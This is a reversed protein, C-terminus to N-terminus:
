DIRIEDVYWVQSGDDPSWDPPLTCEVGILYIQSELTTDPLAGKLQFWDGPKMPKKTASAPLM